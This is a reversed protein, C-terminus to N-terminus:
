CVDAICRPAGVGMPGVQLHASTATSLAETLPAVRQGTLNSGQLRFGSSHTPSLDTLNSPLVVVDAQVSIFLLFLVVLGMTSHPPNLSSLLPPGGPADPFGSFSPVLASRHLHRYSDTRLGRLVSSPPRLVIHM